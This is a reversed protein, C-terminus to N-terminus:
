TFVEKITGGTIYESIILILKNGEILHLMKVVGPHDINSLTTYENEQLKKFTKNQRSLKDKNIEKVSVLM